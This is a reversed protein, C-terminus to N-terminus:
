ICVVCVHVCERMCMRMCECVCVCAFVCVCICMCERLQEASKSYWHFLIVALILYTQSTM